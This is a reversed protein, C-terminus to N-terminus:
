NPEHDKEPAPGAKELGKAVAEVMAKKFSMGVTERESEDEILPGGCILCTGDDPGLDLDHPADCDACCLDM